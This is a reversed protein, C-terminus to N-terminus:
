TPRTHRMSLLHGNSNPSYPLNAYKPGYDSPVIQGSYDTFGITSAISPALFCLLIACTILYRSQEEQYKSVGRMPRMYRRWSPMSCRNPLHTGHCAKRSTKDTSLTATKKPVSKM